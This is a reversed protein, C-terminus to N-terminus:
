TENKPIDKPEQEALQSLGYQTIEVGRTDRITIEAGIAGTVIALAERATSARKVVRKTLSGIGITYCQTANRPMTGKSLDHQQEPPASSQREFLGILMELEPKSMTEMTQPSIVRELTTIRPDIFLGHEQVCEGSLSQLVLNGLDCKLLFRRHDEDSV